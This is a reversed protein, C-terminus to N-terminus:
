TGSHRALQANIFIVTNEYKARVDAPLREFPGFTRRFGEYFQDVSIPAPATFDHAFVAPWNVVSRHAPGARTPVDWDIVVSSAGTRMGLKRAKSAM